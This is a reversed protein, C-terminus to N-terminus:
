KAGRIFGIVQEPNGEQYEYTFVPLHSDCVMQGYVLLLETLLGYNKVEEWLQPAKKNNELMVDIDTQCYIVSYAERYLHSELGKYLVPSLEPGDRLVEGYVQPSWHFRDFIVPGAQILKHMQVVNPINPQVVHVVPWGFYDRLARILTTKGAGDAGEVVM